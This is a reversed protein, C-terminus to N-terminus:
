TSSGEANSFRIICQRVAEHSVGCRKALLRLSEGWTHRQAVEQWRDEPIQTQPRSYRGQLLNTPPRVIPDTIEQQEHLKLGSFDYTVTRAGDSGGSLEVM